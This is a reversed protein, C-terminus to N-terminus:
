FDEGYETTNDINYGDGAKATDGYPNSDSLLSRKMHVNVVKCKPAKYEENFNSKIM